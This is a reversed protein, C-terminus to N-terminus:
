NKKWRSRYNTSGADDNYDKSIPKSDYITEEGGAFGM